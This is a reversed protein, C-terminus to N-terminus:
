NWVQWDATCCEDVLYYLINELREKETESLNLGSFNQLWTDPEYDPYFGTPFNLNDGEYSLLIRKGTTFPNEYVFGGIVKRFSDNNEAEPFKSILKSYDWIVVNGQSAM